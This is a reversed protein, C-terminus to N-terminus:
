QPSGSSGDESKKSDADPPNQGGPGGPGAMQRRLNEVFEPNTQQIQQALQQGSSVCENFFIM